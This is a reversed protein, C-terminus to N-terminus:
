CASLSFSALTAKQPQSNCTVRHGEKSVSISLFAESMGSVVLFSPSFPPSLPGM